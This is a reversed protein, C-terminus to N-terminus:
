YVDCEVGLGLPLGGCLDAPHALDCHLEVPFVSAIRGEFVKQGRELLALTFADPLLALADGHLPQANCAECTFGDRRFNPVRKEREIFIRSTRGTALPAM